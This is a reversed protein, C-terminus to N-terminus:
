DDDCFPGPSDSWHGSLCPLRCALKGELIKHINKPHVCLFRLPPFPQLEGRWTTIAQIPDSGGPLTGVPPRFAGFEWHGKSGALTPPTGLRGAEKEYFHEVCLSCAYVTDWVPFEDL